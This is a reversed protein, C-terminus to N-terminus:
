FYATVIYTVTNSYNGSAQLDDTELQYSIYNTDTLVPGPASAIEHPTANSQFSGYRNLSFRPYNTLDTTTFGFYSHHTGVPSSWVEPTTWTDASGSSGQFNSIFVTPTSEIPHNQEITLRYGDAANTTVIAEQCAIKRNAGNFIGYDIDSSTSSIEALEAPSANPCPNGTNVGNLVFTLHQPISVSVTNDKSDDLTTQAHVIGFMILTLALNVFFIYLSTYYKHSLNVM